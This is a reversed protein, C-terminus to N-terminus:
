YVEDDSDSTYYLTTSANTDVVTELAPMDGYDDSTNEDIDEPISLSVPEQFQKNTTLPKDDDTYIMSKEINRITDSVSIGCKKVKTYDQAETFVNNPIYREFDSADSETDESFPPPQVYHSQVVNTDAEDNSSM